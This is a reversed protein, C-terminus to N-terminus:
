VEEAGRLSGPRLDIWEHSQKDYIDFLECGEAVVDFLLHKLYAKDTDMLHSTLKDVALVAIFSNSVVSLEPLVQCDLWRHTRGYIQEITLNSTSFKTDGRLLFYSDHLVRAVNCGETVVAMQDGEVVFDLVKSIDCHWFMLDKEDHKECLLVSLVYSNV